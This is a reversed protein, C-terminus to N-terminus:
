KFIEYSIVNFTTPLFSTCKDPYKSGFLVIRNPDYFDFFGALEVGPRALLDSEINKDLSQESILVELNLDKVLDKVYVSM